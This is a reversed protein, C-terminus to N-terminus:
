LCCLHDGAYLGELIIDVKAHKRLNKLFYVRKGCHHARRQMDRTDRFMHQQQQQKKMKVSFLPSQKTVTALM